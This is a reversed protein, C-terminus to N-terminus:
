TWLLIVTGDQAARLWFAIHNESYATGNEHLKPLTREFGAGIIVYHAEDDDTSHLELEGATGNQVRAARRM